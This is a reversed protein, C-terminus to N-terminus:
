DSERLFRWHGRGGRGIRKEIWGKRELAQLHNIAATQRIGFKEAIEWTSPLRDEESFFDQLFDMVAAQKQTLQNM